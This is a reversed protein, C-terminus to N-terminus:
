LPRILDPSLTGRVVHHLGVLGAMLHFGWHQWVDVNPRPAM